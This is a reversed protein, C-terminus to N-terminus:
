GQMDPTRRSRFLHHFMQRQREGYVKPHAALAIGDVSCLQLAM